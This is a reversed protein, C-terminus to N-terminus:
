RSNFDPPLRGKKIIELQSFGNKREVVLKVRIINTRKNTQEKTNESIIMDTQQNENKEERSAEKLLQEQEALVQLQTEKEQISNTEKEIQEQESQVMQKDTEEANNNALQLHEDIGEKKESVDTELERIKEKEANIEPNPEQIEKVPEKNNSFVNSLYELGNALLGKQKVDKESIEQNEERKDSPEEEKKSIVEQAEEEPEYEKMAEEDEKMAEEDEKMAEEDTKLISNEPEKEIDEEEEEEEGAEEDTILEGDNDKDIPKPTLDSPVVPEDKPENNKSYLNDLFKTNANMLNNPGLTEKNSRFLRSYIDKREKSVGEKLNLVTDMFTEFYQYPYSVDSSGGVMPKVENEIADDLDEEKNEVIQIEYHLQMATIMSGFRTKFVDVMNEQDIGQIDFVYEVFDAQIM